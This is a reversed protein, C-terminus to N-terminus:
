GVAWARFRGRGTIERLGLETIMSRAAQPTVSLATAVTDATALPAAVVLDVLRPLRSNSRRMGVRRLLLERATLLREHDELGRGAGAAIAELAAQLRIVPDAHRRREPAVARLGSAIDLLHSGVKGRGRLLDAALLRGLGAEDPFPAFAEWALMAWAAALTPPRDHAADVEARWRALRDDRDPPPTRILGEPLSRASREVAALLQDTRALLADVEAFTADWSEKEIAGDDDLDDEADIPVPERRGLLALIGDGSLAVGPPLSALRRALRLHGHARTLEHTPARADRQVDHLVLDELQVLAGDLCLSSLAETFQNRACWGARIPSCALRQDLRAVADEARALPTALRDWPLTELRIPLPRLMNIENIAPKKVFALVSNAKPVPM